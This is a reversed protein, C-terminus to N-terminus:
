GFTVNIYSVNIYSKQLINPKKSFFLMNVIIAVGPASTAM